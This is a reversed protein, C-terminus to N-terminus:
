PKLRMVFGYRSTRSPSPAASPMIMGTCGAQSFIDAAHIRRSTPFANSATHPSCSGSGSSSRAFYRRILRPAASDHMWKGCAISSTASARRRRTYSSSSSSSSISMRSDRSRVSPHSGTTWATSPGRMAASASATGKRSVSSCSSALRSMRAARAAGCVAFWRSSPSTPVPLVTTAAKASAAAASVPACARSMAGVSTSARWCPLLRPGSNSAAPMEQATSVPEVGEASRSATRARTASPETSTSM